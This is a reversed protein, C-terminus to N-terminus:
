PQERWVEVRPEPGNFHHVYVDNGVRKAFGLPSTADLGSAVLTGDRRFVDARRVGSQLVYSNVVLGRIIAIKSSASFNPSWRVLSGVRDPKAAVFGDPTRALRGLEVGEPTLHVVEYPTLRSLWLTGDDPDIALQGSSLTQEALSVQPADVHSSLYRGNAGFRHLIKQNATGLAVVFLDGSPHRVFGNLSITEITFPVTAEHRLSRDYFFFRRGGDDALILGGDPRAVLRPIVMDEPPIGAPLELFREFGGNSGFIAVRRTDFDLM